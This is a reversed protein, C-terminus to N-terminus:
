YDVSFLMVVLGVAALVALVIGVVALTRESARKLAPIGALLAVIFGVPLMWATVIRLWGAPDFGAIWGFTAQGIMFTGIAALIGGVFAWLGSGTRATMTSAM